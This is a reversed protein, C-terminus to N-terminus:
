GPTHSSSTNLVPQMLRQRGTLLCTYYGMFATPLVLVHALPALVNHLRARLPPRSKTKGILWWFFWAAAPVCCLFGEYPRSNALIAVGLGLLITDPIKSHKAIRPLAGLVLAGGIAATAGGWYSNM